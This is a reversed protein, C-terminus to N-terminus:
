EPRIISLVYAETEFYKKAVKSIDERTVALIKKPYREIEGAGLGYLDNLTYSSALAMLRQSELEYTGVIYQQARSLEDASVPESLIKRLETRIGNVATQIKGPETGIYVAFHGPEIGEVHMSSVAYALSMRDRLELFLRGGQGALINNLVAMVYRDPNMFTTGRFGIVIHAQQKEKKKAEVVRPAVPKPDAAIRVQKRRGKPLDCLNAELLEVIEKPSIDGVVSIVTGEGKLTEKYFRRIMAPTMMKVSRTEGMVRLGYPHKPFLTKMFHIFAMSALADEQDKISQLLLRKEHEVEHPAFSPHTLIDCFLDVADTVYDSIFQCRLGFTNRGSFGDIHGALRESEKAITVADRTTTGKTLLRSALESIGNNSPTESRTGGIWAASMAVLPLNHNERVIIKAGSGLKFERIRTQEEKPIRAPRKEAREFGMAESLKKKKKPWPSGHPTLVALTCNEPTMYRKAVQRITEARVDILMQYYRAEFEHTGAAALFSALKGAQGGVTEKEYIENSRINLKASSLESVLVPEKQMREIEHCIADLAKVANADNLVASITMIGPDKPTYSVAAIQHVLHKKEKVIQELRSSEAGGLIHSMADLAPVDPHTIAPIHYALAMYTSQINMHEIVVRMDRQPPEVIMEITAVPPPPGDFRAFTRKLQELMTEVDFDGVVIFSINKPVYWRRYFDILHKQTFSRVTEPCGIIPRGYPHRSYAHKFLMEGVMRGPNDKERRIEELIVEKERALEEEDFLPNQIADALIALGRDAFRTAMNIYFVTQDFSTYANIEGGAAEIDRAIVGVPRTPTGKFLMHEIVHCMGAEADTEFASGVKVLANFSIVPATRNEELLVEMGNDLVFTKVAM